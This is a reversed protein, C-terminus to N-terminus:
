ERLSMHHRPPLPFDDLLNVLLIGPGSVVKRIKAANELLLALFLLLLLLLLSNRLWRSLYGRRLLNLLQRLRRLIPRLRRDMGDWLPLM